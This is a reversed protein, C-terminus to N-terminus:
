VILTYMYVPVIIRYFIYSDQFKSRETANINVVEDACVCIYIYIYIYVCVCLLSIHIMTILCMSVVVM